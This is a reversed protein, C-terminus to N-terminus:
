LDEASQANRSLIISLNGNRCRLDDIFQKEQQTNKLKIDYIVQFMNELNITKVVKLKAESTYEKFLDDFVDSYDLDEPISIKLQRYLSDSNFIPTLFLFMYTASIILVSLISFSIYGMGTALRISMAFFITLIDSTKDPLLRFRIISFAGAVAVGAGLNGNVMMIVIQVIIPLLAITISFSKSPQVCKKYISSIVFGLILSTASCIIANYLTLNSIATNLISSFM